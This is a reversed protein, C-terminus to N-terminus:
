PMRVRMTASILGECRTKTDVLHEQIIAYEQKLKVREQELMLLAAEVEVRHAESAHL